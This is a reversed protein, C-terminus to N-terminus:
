ENYEEKELLERTIAYINEHVGGGSLFAIEKIGKRLRVIERYAEGCREEQKALMEAQVNLLVAVDNVRRDDDMKVKGKM